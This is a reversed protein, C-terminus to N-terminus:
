KKKSGKGLCCVFKCTRIYRRLDPHAAQFHILSSTLQKISFGMMTYNGTLRETGFPRFLKKVYEVDVHLSQSVGQYCYNHQTSFVFPFLLASFILVTDLKMMSVLLCGRERDNQDPSPFQLQIQVCQVTCTTVIIHSGSIIYTNQIYIVWLFLLSFM